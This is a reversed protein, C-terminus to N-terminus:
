AVEKTTHFGEQLYKFTLGARQASVIRSAVRDRADRLVACIRLDFKKFAM